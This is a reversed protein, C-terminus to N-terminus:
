IYSTIRISNRNIAGLTSNFLASYMELIGKENGKNWLHVKKLSAAHQFKGM